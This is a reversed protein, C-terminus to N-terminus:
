VFETLSYQLPILNQTLCLAQWDSKQRAWRRPIWPLSWPHSDVWIFLVFCFIFVLLFTEYVTKAWLFLLNDLVFPGTHYIIVNTDEVNALLNIKTINYNDLIMLPLAKLHCTIVYAEKGSIAFSAWDWCLEFSSFFTLYLVPPIDGFNEFSFHLPSMKFTAILSSLFLSKHGKIWGCATIMCWVWPKPLTFLSKSCFDLFQNM